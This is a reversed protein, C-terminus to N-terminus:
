RSNRSIFWISEIEGRANILCGVRDGARLRSRSANSRGPAHFTVSPSLRYLTDGIVAEDNALRELRGITDFIGPYGPHLSKEGSNTISTQNRRGTDTDACLSTGPAFLIVANMLGIITVTLVKSKIKCYMAIGKRILRNKVVLLWTWRGM